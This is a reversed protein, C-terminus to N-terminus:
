GGGDGCCSCGGPCCLLLLLLLPLLAGAPPGTFGEDTGLKIPAPEENAGDAAATAANGFPKGGALRDFAPPWGLLLLAAGEDSGSFTGCM